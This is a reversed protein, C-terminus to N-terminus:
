LGEFRNGNMEKKYDLLYSMYDYEPQYGFDRENKSIDMLINVATRKEPRYIIESPHDKPSFVEIMGRVQEELSTIKGSGINYEGGEQDESEIIMRIFRALDKVYIMDNGKTPDGWIEIPEGACARDILYRHSILRQEGDVYYHRNPTYMYINPFRISFNKIGYAEHYQKMLEICTVKAISYVSHDTTYNINRPMDAGYREIKGYYGSYDAISNAFIFRDAHVSKAYELMLLTGRINIDVYQVPDYGKMTAPLIGALHVIAYVDETPLKKYDEEKSIDLSIYQIHFRDFYDTKRRGIAIVEYEENSLTSVLHDTLYVGVDGTAGFILIKKM